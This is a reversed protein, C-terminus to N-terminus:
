KIMLPGKKIMDNFSLQEDSNDLDLSGLIILIKPNKLYTKM